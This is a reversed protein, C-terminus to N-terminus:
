LLAEGPERLSQLVWFTVDFIVLFLLDLAPSDHSKGKPSQHAARTIRTVQQPLIWQACSGWSCLQMESAPVRGSRSNTRFSASPANVIPTWPLWPHGKGERGEKRRGEWAILPGAGGWACLCQWKCALPKGLMGLHQDEQCLNAPWMPQLGM